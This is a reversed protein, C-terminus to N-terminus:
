SERVPVIKLINRPDVIVDGIRITISNKENIRRNLEEADYNQIHAIVKNGDQTYVEVKEILRM